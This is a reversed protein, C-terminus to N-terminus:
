KFLANSITVLAFIGVMVVGFLYIGKPIDSINM